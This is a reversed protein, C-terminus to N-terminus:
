IKCTVVRRSSRARSFSPHFCCCRCCHAAFLSCSRFICFSLRARLCSRSRALSCTATLIFCSLSLSKVFALTTSRSHSFILATTLPVTVTHSLSLLTFMWMRHSTCFCSMSLSLPLPKKGCFFSAQRVSIVLCPLLEMTFLSLSRNITLFLSSSFVHKFPTQPILAQKPTHSLSGHLEKTSPYSPKYSGLQYATTNTFPWFLLSLEHLVIDLNTQCNFRWRRRCFLKM